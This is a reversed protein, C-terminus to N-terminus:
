WHVSTQGATYFYGRIINDSLEFEVQPRFSVTYPSFRGNGPGNM